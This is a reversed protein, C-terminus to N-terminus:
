KIIIKNVHGILGSSCCYQTKNPAILSTISGHTHGCLIAKVEDSSSVLNIFNHTVEDCDNYQMSYYSDLKLFDAINYETMIPIHMTLILPKKYTLLKELSKLQSPKIKRTSNNISVVLFEGLDAYHFDCNGQCIDQFLESPYEHNGCSFLYPSVLKRISKELYNYNTLSYYDIIDGTLTVLDPHNKNAYEILHNLCETSSLMSEIDYVEIFKKAFDTRQKMWLREQNIAKDIAESDDLKKDYSVAHVDSFQIIIYERSLGLDIRLINEQIFSM